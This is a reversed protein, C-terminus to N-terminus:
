LELNDNEIDKEDKTNDNDPERYDLSPLIEKNQEVNFSNGYSWPKLPNLTEEDIFHGELIVEKSSDKASEVSDILSGFTLEDNRYANRQQEIEKFESLEQLTFGHPTNEKFIDEFTINTEPNSLVEKILKSDGLVAMMEGATMDNIYGYNYSYVPNDYHIKHDLDIDSKLIEVIIKIDKASAYNHRIVEEMKAEFVNLGNENPLNFDAGANRLLQIAKISDEEKHFYPNDLISEIPSKFVQPADMDRTANKYFDTTINPNFDPRMILAKLDELDGKRLVSEQFSMEKNGREDYMASQLDIGHEIFWKYSNAGTDDVLNDMHFAIVGEQHFLSALNQNNYEFNLDIPMREVMSNIMREDKKFFECLMNVGHRQSLEELNLQVPFEEFNKQKCYDYILDMGIKYDPREMMYEIPLKGYEDRVTFAIDSLRFNRNLEQAKGNKILDFIADMHESDFAFPIDSYNMKLGADSAYLVSKSIDNQHLNLILHHISDDTFTMKYEKKTLHSEDFGMQKYIGFTKNHEENGVYYEGNIYSGIGQIKENGIKITIYEKDGSKSILYKANEFDEQTFYKETNRLLACCHIFDSIRSNHNLGIEEDLRKADMGQSLGWMMIDSEEIHSSIISRGVSNDDSVIYVGNMKQYQTMNFYSAFNTGNHLQSFLLLDHMATCSEEKAKLFDTLHYSKQENKLASNLKEYSSRVIADSLDVRSGYSDKLGFNSDQLDQGHYMLLANGARNIGGYGRGYSNYVCKTGDPIDISCQKYTNIGLDQCINYANAQTLVENIYSYESYPLNYIGGDNALYHMLEHVIVEQHWDSKRDITTDVEITKEYKKCLGAPTIGDSDEQMVTYNLHRLDALRSIVLNADLSKNNELLSAVACGMLAKNEYSTNLSALIGMAKEYYKSKFYKDNM